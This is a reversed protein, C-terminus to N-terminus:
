WEVDIVTKHNAGARFVASFKSPLTFVFNSRDTPEDVADARAATLEVDEVLESPSVIGGEADAELSDSEEIACASGLLSAVVGILVGRHSIGRSFAAMDMEESDAAGWPRKM